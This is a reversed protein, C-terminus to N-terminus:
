AAEQDAADTTPDKRPRIGFWSMPRDKGGKKRDKEIGQFVWEVEKTFKPMDLPYKHGRRSCWTVYQEYVQQTPVPKAQDDAEYNELLYERAPNSAVRHEQKATHCVTSETFRGQDRLRQLGELAWNLIGALEGSDQWWEPRLFDRNQEAKPIQVTLPMLILRKWM